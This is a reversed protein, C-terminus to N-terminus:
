QVPRPQGLPPLRSSWERAWGEFMRAAMGGGPLVIQPAARSPAAPPSAAPPVYVPRRAKRSHRAANRLKVNARSSRPESARSQVRHSGPAPDARPTLAAVDNGGAPRPVPLPLDSPGSDGQGAALGDAPSSVAVARVVLVPSQAVLRLAPPAMAAIAIPLVEPTLPATLASAPRRPDPVRGVEASLPLATVAPAPTVSGRAPAGSATARAVPTVTPLAGPAALAPAERPTEALPALPRLDSVGHASPQLAAADRARPSFQSARRGPRPEPEPEASAVAATESTMRADPQVVLWVAGIAVLMAMTALGGFAVSRINSAAKTPAVAVPAPVPPVVDAEDDTESAPVFEPNADLRVRFDGKDQASRYWGGEIMAECVAREFAWRQMAATMAAAAAIPLYGVRVGRISVSVANPDFPNDPEATLVAVCTYQTPEEGRGQALWELRDQHRAGGVVEVAYDGDGAIYALDEETDPGPM